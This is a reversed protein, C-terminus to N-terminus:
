LADMDYSKPLNTIFIAYHLFLRYADAHVGAPFPLRHPSLVAAGARM